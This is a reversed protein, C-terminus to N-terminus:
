TRKLITYTGFLDKELNMPQKGTDWGLIHAMERAKIDDTVDLALVTFGAHEYQEPTFPSRGDAWPIYPKDLPAPAPCLNYIVFLGGPKIADHVSTLFQEDTVGLDVLLSKDAPREPHVYGRKLTNKSVFLDIDKGAEATVKADSPFSGNIVRVSGDKSGFSGVDEPTSYLNALFPDVDIGVAEAGMAAFLRLQGIGGYGYDLVKAHELHDLGNKAALDLARAYAMPTGYKTNYYLDSAVPVVRVKAKGAEDLAAYEAPTFWKGKQYYLKRPTSDTLESAKSLWEKALSSEVFPQMALAQQRLELLTLSPQTKVIFPLLLSLL